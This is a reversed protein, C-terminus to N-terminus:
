EAPVEGEPTVPPPEAMAPQAVPEDFEPADAIRRIAFGSVRVGQIVLVCSTGTATCEAGVGRAVDLTDVIPEYRLNVIGDAGLEEARARAQGLADDVTTSAVNWTDVKRSHTGGKNSEVSVIQAAPWFRLDILGVPEHPATYDYPTFLFGDRTHPTLDLMGGDTRAAVSTREASPGVCAGFVFLAAALVAAKIATNM